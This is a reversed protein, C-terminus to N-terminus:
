GTFVPKAPEAPGDPMQEEDGAPEDDTASEATAMEDDTAPVDEIASTDLQQAESLITIRGSGGEPYAEATVRGQLDDALFEALAKQYTVGLSVFELDGLPYCDGGNALFNITVLEIPDGPVVEGDKVIETGDSLTVQQVRAGENGTLECESSERNIERASAFPNITMTFGAIQPFQGRADPIGDVAQELMTKFTERPVSVTGVFNSFPAIDFTTGETLDGAPIVSDNRIGGGNQIAVMPAEIDYSEARNAAAAFQADAMLNGVNTEQTRINPRRGDLDVESTALVNANIGELAAALPDEVNAKVDADPATDMSVAISRGEYSVLNGDGDFSATLSGICRYGGPVTVVPVTADDADTAELPYNGYADEGAMCTSADNSLLEDGGGAIAIDVGSIQPILELDETVSQLHSVLIIKNVGKETLSSVEANVAEAVNGVVANRPSSINPLMPTVAGIVGIKADGKEIVTSKALRGEEVLAALKPENTVDLNASLFTVPPDFGSIFEAAVDPGFDMDHNGVAMADYLGSLAISDYFPAGKAVSINFEKSALFNDGSTLTVVGDTEAGEQLGKLATVFRAIGPYGGEANPLLKSEGDNNHLVTLTYEASGQASLMTPVLAAVSAIVATAAIAVITRKPLSHRIMGRVIPM